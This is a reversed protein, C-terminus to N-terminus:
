YENKEKVDPSYGLVNRVLLVFMILLIILLTFLLLTIENSIPVEFILYVLTVLVFIELAAIQSKNFKLM